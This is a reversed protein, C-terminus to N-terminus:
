VPLDLAVTASRKVSGGTITTVVEYAVVFQSYSHITGHNRTPCNERTM